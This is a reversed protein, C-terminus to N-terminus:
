SRRVDRILRGMAEGWKWLLFVDSALVVFTYGQRLAARVRAPTPDVIQTGCAKGARRCAEIVGTCARQVRPHDLQGPIGLSGSIDYPGIMAGDVAPHALLPDAAEVAEASEIQILLVARRNWGATYEGFDFGYGQARSVGYGRKGAPPYLIWEAIRCVEEERSVNPVLIGDAGSDLLRRIQEANHSSVRPLAPVGGAQSAATMRQAQHHGVTTHELDICIFDAGSRAFAETISPHGLSTWCGFLRERKRLRRKLELGRRGVPM